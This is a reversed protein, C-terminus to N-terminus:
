KEVRQLGLVDSFCLTARSKKRKACWCRREEREKRKEPRTVEERRRESEEGGAKGNTWITPLKVELSGEL